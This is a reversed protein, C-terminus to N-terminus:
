SPLRIKKIKKAQSIHSRLLLSDGVGPIEKKTVSDNRVLWEDPDLRSM